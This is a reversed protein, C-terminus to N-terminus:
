QSETPKDTDRLFMWMAYAHPDTDIGPSASTASRDDSLCLYRTAFWPRDDKGADPSDASAFLGDDGADSPVLGLDPYFSDTVASKINNMEELATTVGASGAVASLGAALAAALAIMIATVVILELVTLGQANNHKGMM